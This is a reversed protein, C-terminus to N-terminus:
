GLTIVLDDAEVLHKEKLHIRAIAGAQTAAVTTEMKMAEIIFLPQNKAVKDGAKVMIRSLMGPLPSGIHAPNNKDTKANAIKEIKLSKDTILLNRTQGNLKFFVTRQGDADADGVSLLRILLTKGPAMEIEVEEDSAMGFFFNPTPVRSIDGFRQRHEWYEEFVKPFMKYSLYDTYSAGAFQQAFAEYDAELDLPALHANPKDTYPKEDKLIIKQLKKPWGGEPQGLDGRMLQKVSEPFSIVDGRELVDRVTLGNTVLFQAMDGVVKSSPTVKVIDGFLMNVEAFTKKILDFKDGLGLAM